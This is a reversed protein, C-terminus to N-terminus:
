IKKIWNLIEETNMEGFDKKDPLVIKIQSQDFYKSLKKFAKNAANNGAFNNENDNNFSLIVQTPDSKLLFNLLNAGIDLGFSVLVNKVGAEWLSLMDGISEVIIIEKSQLIIKKNLFAPYVWNSKSGIHKWKPRKTNEYNLLDRGSFGVIKNRHNFIPFVYRDKMKGSDVEGGKFDLLTQQSVGRKIWYDQKDHLNNLLDEDFIKQESIKEIHKPRETNYYVKDSLWTKADEIKDVKLTLRVLEEFSGRINRGFDVFRGTVKNISLSTENDSNRYIPKTRYFEGSDKINSYGLELLTQKIDSM